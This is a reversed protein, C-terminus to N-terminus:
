QGSPLDLPEGPSVPTGFDPSGDANWSFRQLRIDRDWGPDTTKKSHYLIWDQTGDPSKAFSCHGVGHVKENGQFVPGTKQWNEPKM